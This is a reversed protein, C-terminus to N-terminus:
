EGINTSSVQYTVVDSYTADANDIRFTTANTMTIFTDAEDIASWIGDGHDIILLAGIYGFMEAIDQLSPLSPEAIDTGYLKDELIKLIEPPTERSDVSIHVTPRFTPVKPPTGSLAWSFEIAHAGSDDFTSFSYTDPNALVNYLIHIKYGYEPGKLDNGVRTRYSLNFSKAPQDYYVLGPSTGVRAIGNVSDFEDPYTFAKLKGSFDGPILTELFKVGDLYFAKLESATSEEIDILGNWVAVTGDHLYLVGRDIGSQYIREGTQDWVLTAM